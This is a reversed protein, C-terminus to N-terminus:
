ARLPKGVALVGTWLEFRTLDASYKTFIKKELNNSYALADLMGKKCNIAEKGKTGLSLLLQCPMSYRSMDNLVSHHTAKQTLTRYICFIIM